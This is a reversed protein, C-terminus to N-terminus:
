EGKAFAKAQIGYLKAYEGGQRILEDNKGREVIKGDKMCIITDAHQTLHGFRHTVFVMTKGERAELLKNFLQLEGDADLASSPEDVAVFKVNGSNFRMFSRSAVLRQKEGGSIKAPKELKEMEGTESANHLRANYGTDLKSIFESAGGQEAAKAILDMDDSSQLLGLGINEALSLPYIKNDQSLITSARRLDAMNYSNAPQGDILFDGSTPDYLRALLRVLTSKGSGNAGVIVVLSGSPITLNVKDLAGSTKRSGPYAFSVNRLEFSMGEGGKESSPYAMQGGLVKNPIDATSYIEKIKTVHKWFEETHRLLKGLSRQLAGTSNQYIAVSAISFRTPDFVISLGCYVMPLEGSVDRLIMTIPSQAYYYQYHPHTQPIDGLRYRAAEYEKLVWPALDNSLVDERYDGNALRGLSRMRKYDENDVYTYGEKDWLRRHSINALLPEALCALLFIPDGSARSERYIVLIQSFINLLSTFFKLIEIFADWASHGNVNIKSSADLCPKWQAKMLYLDYHSIVLGMLRNELKQGLWLLYAALATCAVRLGLAWILESAFPEGSSLAIEIVRLLRTSLYVLLADELGAWVKGLIVYGFLSPSLGYVDKFLRVLHPASHRMDQIENMLLMRKNKSTAFVLRYIGLQEQQLVVDAYKDPEIPNSPETPHDRRKEDVTM